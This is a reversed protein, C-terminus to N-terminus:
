GCGRSALLVVPLCNRGHCMYPNALRTSLKDHWSGSMSRTTTVEVQWRSAQGSALEVIQQDEM